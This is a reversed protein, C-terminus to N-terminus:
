RAHVLLADRVPREGTPDSPSNVVRGAVVMASSGGGDLNLAVTAGLELMLGQLEPITMGVSRRPQRGDVVVLLLSGDARVGVATRPHRKHLFDAAYPADPPLAAAAGAEVLAPGGGVVAAPAFGFAPTASMRVDLRVRTRERAASILWERAAGDASLVFGQEPIRRSGQSAGLEVVRGREVVAEAGDPGTLTTRHFEPTYVILEDTERPRNFGSIERSQGGVLARATTELRAVALRARGDTDGLAVVPRGRHPESLLREGVALAGIPEGLLLGSTRFYGGNIAALARQRAAISSTTEVGVVADRALGLALRVRAPDLTLLHIELLEPPEALPNGRRLLRYEAGPFPQPPTAPGGAAQPEASQSPTPQPQAPRSQAPQPQAPQAQSSPPQSPSPQSPSPLSPPAQSSPSQSPRQALAGGALALLLVGAARLVPKVL